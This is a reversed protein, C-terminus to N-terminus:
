LANCNGMVWERWPTGSTKAWFHQYIAEFPILFSGVEKALAADFGLDVRLDPSAANLDDINGHCHGALMFVGRTKKNWSMMPYHCLVCHLVEDDRAVDIELIDGVLTARQYAPSGKKWTDWKDHNGLVKYFEKAKLSDRLVEQIETEPTTRWFMDGLDFVVDDPGVKTELEHRIWENMAQAGTFPRKNMHIVSEHSYHLDSMFWVGRNRSNFTKQLKM